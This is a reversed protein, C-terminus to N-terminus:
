QLVDDILVCFRSDACLVGDVDAGGLGVEERTEEDSLEEDESDEVGEFEPEEKNCNSMSPHLQLDRIIRADEAQIVVTIAADAAEFLFRIVPAHSTKPGLCRRLTMYMDLLKEPPRITQVCSPRKIEHYNKSDSPYKPHPPRTM